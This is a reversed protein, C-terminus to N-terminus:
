VKESAEKELTKRKKKEVKWTEWRYILLWAAFTLVMLPFSICAYLKLANAEFVAPGPGGSPSEFRIIDTSM